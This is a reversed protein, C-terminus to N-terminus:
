NELDTACPEGSVIYNNGSKEIKLNLSFRLTELVNELTANEFDAKLECAYLASDAVQIPVSFHRTLDTLVHDLTAHDFILKGNIWSTVNQGPAATREVEAGSVHLLIGAQGESFIKADYKRTTPEFAVRGEEVYLEVSANEATKVNFKTGLVRITGNGAAVSFPRGEDHVVDFFGEGNLSVQRVAFDDQYTLTSGKRLIVTSGDPLVVEHTNKNGADATIMQPKGYQSQYIWTAGFIAILVAAAAAIRRFPIRPATIVPLSIRPMKSSSGSHPQIRRDIQTWDEEVQVLDPKLSGTVSWIRSLHQYYEMHEPDRAAWADLMRAEDERINGSLRKAILETWHQVNAIMQNRQIM